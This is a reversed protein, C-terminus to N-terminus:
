FRKSSDHINKMLDGYLFANKVNMQEFELDLSTTLGLMVCVVIMKVVHSFIEYFDIGKKQFFGKLV